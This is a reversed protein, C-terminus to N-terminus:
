KFKYILGLCLNKNFWNPNNKIPLISYNYKINFGTKKGFFYIASVMLSFDFDHMDYLNEPITMDAKVLKSKILYSGAIGADLQVRDMPKFCILFPVEIYHLSTNFVEIGDVVKKAGKGIYFLEIKAGFLKNLNVDVSVGAFLGPKKFGAQTDGDVQNGSLGALIAGNFRQSMATNGAILAVCVLISQITKM